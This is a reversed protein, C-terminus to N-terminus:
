GKETPSPSKEPLVVRVAQKDVGHFKYMSCQPSRSCGPQDQCVHGYPCDAKRCGSGRLCPRRRWYRKLFRLEENNLRPGHRFTCPAASSATCSGQLHYFACFQQKVSRALMSKSTERDMEELEYDIREDHINLLINKETAWGSQHKTPLRAAARNSMPVGTTAQWKSIADNKEEIDDVRATKGAEPIINNAGPQRPVDQLYNVEEVLRDTKKYPTSRFISPFEIRDFLLGEFYTSTEYSKLLTISSATIPNCNYIELATAYASNHCCGLILHKCQVNNAFLHIMATKCYTNTILFSM